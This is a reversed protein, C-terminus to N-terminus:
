VVNLIQEDAPVRYVVVPVGSGGAVHIDPDREIRFIGLAGCRRQAGKAVRLSRRFHKGRRPAHNPHADRREAQFDQGGNRAHFEGIAIGSPLDGVDIAYGYRNDIDSVQLAVFLCGSPKFIQGIQFLQFLEATPQAAVM